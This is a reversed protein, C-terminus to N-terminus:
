YYADYRTARWGGNNDMTLWALSSSTKGDGATRNITYILEANRGDGKRDMLSWTELPYKRERECLYEVRASDLAQLSLAQTCKRDKLRQLVVEAQREPERERFPNLIVFASYNGAARDVYRYLVPHSRTFFLYAALGSIIAVVTIPIKRNM